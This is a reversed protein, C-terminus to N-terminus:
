GKIIKYEWYGSNCPLSHIPECGPVRGPIFRGTLEYRVNRPKSKLANLVIRCVDHGTVYNVAECIGLADFIAKGIRVWDIRPNKISDATPDSFVHGYDRVLIEEDNIYTIEVNNTFITVEQGNENIYREEVIFNENEISCVGKYSSADDTANVTIPLTVLFLCLILFNVMIKKKM